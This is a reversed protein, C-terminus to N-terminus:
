AKVGDLFHCLLTLIRDATEKTAAPDVSKWDSGVRHASGTESVNYRSLNRLSHLEEATELTIQISVPTFPKIQATGFTIKM